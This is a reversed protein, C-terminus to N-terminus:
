MMKLMAELKEIAEPSLKQQAINVSVSRRDILTPQPWLSSRIKELLAAEEVTRPVPFDGDEALRRAAKMLYESMYRRTERANESTIRVMEADPDYPVVQAKLTETEQRARSWKERAARACLTSKKIGTQRHIEGLSVGSIFLNRISNWTSQPLHRPM